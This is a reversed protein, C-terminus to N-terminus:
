PSRRRAQRAHAIAVSRIRDFRVTGSRRAKAARLGDGEIKDDVPLDLGRLDVRRGAARYGWRGLRNGWPHVLPLATMAGARFADLTRPWAVYEEGRYRLSTGLMGATPLFTAEYDAARLTVAPAGKWVHLEVASM